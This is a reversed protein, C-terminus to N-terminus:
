ENWSEVHERTCTTTTKFWKRTTTYILKDISYYKNIDEFNNKYDEASAKAEELTPFCQDTGLMGACYTITVLYKETTTTKKMM